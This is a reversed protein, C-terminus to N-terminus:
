HNIKLNVLLMKEHNNIDNKKYKVFQLDDFFKNSNKSTRKFVCTFYKKDSEKEQFKKIRHAVKLGCANCVRLGVNKADEFDQYIKRIQPTLTLSIDCIYCRYNIFLLDEIAAIDTENIDPEQLSM